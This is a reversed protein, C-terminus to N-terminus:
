GGTRELRGAMEKMVKELGERDEETFYGPLTSDMDLVGWIRGDSPCRLPIVIESRSNLDCAIHGPFCCVERVVQAKGEKWATGCVGNGYGIRSVAPRGQFPGVVLEDGDALYFGVWNAESFAQALVAGANALVATRDTEGATYLDIQERLMKYFPEKEKPYTVEIYSM